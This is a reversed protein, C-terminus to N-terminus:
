GGHVGQFLESCPSNREGGGEPRNYSINVGSNPAFFEIQFPLAQNMRVSGCAM